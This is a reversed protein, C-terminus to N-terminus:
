GALQDVGGVMRIGNIIDIEYIAHSGITLNYYTLDVVFTHLIKKNPEFNDAEVKHLNGFCTAIAPFAAGDAFHALAGRITFTHERGPYLGWLPYVQPDMSSLKFELIMPNCGIDVKIPMDMGAARFDETNVEMVPLKCNEGEGLKGFGDVWVAFKRLIYTLSM